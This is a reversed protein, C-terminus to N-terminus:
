MYPIIFCCFSIPCVPQSYQSDGIGSGAVFNGYPGFKVPLSSRPVFPSIEVEPQASAIPVVPYNDPIYAVNAVTPVAPPTM